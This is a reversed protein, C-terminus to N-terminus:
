REGRILYVPSSWVVAGDELTARVYVANDGERRLPVHRSFRVARHPNADPLRFVRIRRGLGGAEFVRDELGIGAVPLTTRVLNTDIALDGSAADDLVAEFGGFGGTTVHEFAVRAVTADFAKDLNWRNIPRVEAFRNGAVSVAGRWVTERGRGRYESGEWLVRIRRGLDATGYPRWTGVLETRNRLEVREVPSAASLEASFDCATGSVGTLIDGMGAETARGVPAGGLAPDDEHLDAPADLSVRVDLLARTAATTAYHRRRRLARFLAPRSLEEALICTLGGYSGFQSAGPHSAGQRGKHGDSNAAVGVRAGVAFADELLWDFTGWDSHVEVARELARDHAYRLDAYRGGVHPVCLVDGEERLAAHLARVDLADKEADSLDEVLAHCSRRITRGEGAFVVNRDGGLATNGSWEYGPFFVFRGPRDFEATLRNLDRWFEGTIQFDNGQHCMADLFACDRGYEALRRASNTGITEGSQGHLDAWFPLLAAEEVIRLPNSAALARGSEDLWEVRLDGPAGVRLGEIRHARAGDPWAFADPLGELMAGDARLRFRGSVRDSPNGWADDARLCLAFPEGFRRLTPLVARWAAPAGPVVRLSPQDPLLAWNCTAFVDALVLFRFEDECYTQMRLGRSGGRRDGLRVTLTDGPRLFGREVAVTLTRSWPRMGLKPEFSLRLAAGNSAEASVYNPSAPDAFQPSALDSIQRTCIRISGTDDMGFRGATFVLDFSAWSGAVVSGGPMLAVTGIERAMYDTHHATHGGRGAGPIPLRACAPDDDPTSHDPSPMPRLKGPATARFSALRRGMRCVPHKM